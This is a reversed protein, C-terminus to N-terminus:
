GRQLRRWPQMTTRGHLVARGLCRVAFVHREYLQRADLRPLGDTACLVTPQTRRMSSVFRESVRVRADLLDNRRWLLGSEPRRM